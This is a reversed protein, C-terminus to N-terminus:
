IEWNLSVKINREINPIGDQKLRSLHSIYDKNLLNNGSLSFNLRSKGLDIASGFGASLLSYGGTRTEAFGPNNQDFVNKLTTFIYKDKLIKGGIFETRITNTVSNAPILPLYSDDREGTVTEFNGEIHLWDLPHPHFHYGAEGGYLVANDQLYRYVNDGDIVEDTPSIFIYDKISNRFGNLYAEFHEGRYELALDIQLNQENDLDPNGIEYRNAGEHSGNSTLEALNPARFGTALNLRLTLNETFDHKGGLAANLSSFNRDIEPFQGEGSIDETAISRHDYRLGGQFDWRDIHYHGTTFIGFDNTIANPILMEEGFNENKQHMGQSGAILQLNGFDPFNYKVNYSLTSLHMELAPDLHELDEEHLEEEEEAHEEGEEEHHHDEFEKRNNFQYGIKADISSNKLFIKNDLSLVHNDIKQFPLMNDKSLSQVGIEEPIGIESRNFNYRLDGKYNTSQFGAGLKLDREKFRTNTVRRDDGGEYDSHASLTGRALFKMKDGSTKIMASEQYGNTNSFYDSIIGAHTSNAEAYSEPNLYMVGGIADSGYLLSAPGKIVEVSGIGMSNIGLGHEDGFQQNELRVGQTYVLVRNSSLGRIVPKGIGMGTTISEVGPIQTVGEALNVAGRKQLESVSEREVKMVNQSQLQHFPTSVIVEEMEVASPNLQFQLNESPISVQQNLSAYGISSIVLKFNGQPLNSISFKGDLDTMSGKELEPFYVNASFVPEGTEANTITGELSNQSYITTTVAFLLLWLVKKM